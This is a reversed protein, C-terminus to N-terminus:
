GQLLAIGTKNGFIITAAGDAVNMVAACGGSKAENNLFSVEQLRMERCSVCAIGGGIGNNATNSAISNAYNASTGVDDSVVIRSNETLYFGGGDGDEAACTRVTSSRMFIDSFIAQLCGGDMMAKNQELTSYELRLTSAMVHGGGGSTGAENSTVSSSTLELEGSVMFLGGGYGNQARCDSIYSQQIEADASSAFLGGGSESAVNEELTTRLITLAPRGKSSPNTLISVAGGSGDLVSNNRLISDKVSVAVRGSIELAGGGDQAINGLFASNQINILADEAADGIWVAGGHAASCAEFTVNEIRLSTKLNKCTYHAM